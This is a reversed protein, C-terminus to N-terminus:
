NNRNSIYWTKMLGKGKIDVNGRESFIIGLEDTKSEITNKFRETCQIKGPVCSEEMRSATNVTDGWIDYIFKKEGIIGAVVPGCDIGVKFLIITGDGTDYGNIKRMSELAFKVAADAHDNRPQPIGSAAMYCDGITKIKELGYKQAIHDFETYIRNLIEVVRGPKADKSLQTFQSIDIFVVSAEEFNDAITTEGSKLRIAISSPLVNLLLNDSKERERNIIINSKKKSRYNIYIFITIVMAFFLLGLLYNRLRIQKVLELEKDKKESVSLLLNKYLSKNRSNLETNANILNKIEDLRISIIDNGIHIKQYNTVLEDLENIKNQNEQYQNENQLIQRNINRINSDLNSIQSKLPKLNLINYNAYNQTSQINKQVKAPESKKGPEKNKPIPQKENIQNVETLKSKLSTIDNNLKNIEENHATILSDIWGDSELGTYHTLVLTYQDKGPGDVYRIRTNEPNIKGYIIQYNEGRKIIEKQGYKDFKIIKVNDNSFLLFCCYFFLITVLLTKKM